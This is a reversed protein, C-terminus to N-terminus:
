SKLPLVIHLSQSAPLYQGSPAAILVSHVPLVNENALASAHLLQGAFESIDPSLFDGALQWHLAPYISVDLFVRVPGVHV